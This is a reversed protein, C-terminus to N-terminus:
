YTKPMPGWEPHTPDIAMLGEDIEKEKELTAVADHLGKDIISLYVQTTGLDTHGLLVQVVKINVGNEMLDTAFKHRMTHAHFRKLGAKKAFQRIKDSISVAKLKFVKEDPEMGEIFNKLRKAIVPALPIMRDKDGKGGIVMLFDGHVDKAELNALESRRMGTKLGLEVLLSDRVICGKHTQKHEIANFLKQIDSDETYPPLTKPVKVRFDDIPQGCWKMFSKVITAYRARTRPKKSSYQSLFGKALEPSPKSDNLYSHFKTLIQREMELNKASRGKLILEADYLTFLEENTKNKLALRRRGEPGLLEELLERLGLEESLVSAKTSIPPNSGGVEAMRLCREGSQAIDGGVALIIAYTPNNPLRRGGGRKIDKGV